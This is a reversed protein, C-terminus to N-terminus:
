RAEHVTGYGGEGWDECGGEGCVVGAGDEEDARSGSYASADRHGKGFAEGVITRESTAAIGDETADHGPEHREDAAKKMCKWEEDRVDVSRECPGITYDSNLQNDDSEYTMPIELCTKSERTQLDDDPSAKDECRTHKYTLGSETESM